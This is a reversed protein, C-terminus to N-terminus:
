LLGRVAHACASQRLQMRARASMYSPNEREMAKFITDAKMLEPKKWPQIYKQFFLVGTKNRDYVYNGAIGIKDAYCGTVITVHNVQTKTPMIAEADTFVAGNRLLYGINPTLQFDPNEYDNFVFDNNMSDISIIIVREVGSDAYAQKPL